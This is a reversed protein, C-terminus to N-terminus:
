PIRDQLTRYDTGPLICGKAWQDLIDAAFKAYKVDGNLWYVIAADLALDNINGNIDAVFAQPDIWEKQRTEQNMLYMLRATDYPVLEEVSPMRYGSGSITVPGRIHPSVRVTPVPADGESRVTRMGGNDSYVRTYRKGPVRNMLYRSLIWQPDSVHREAYRTVNDIMDKYIKGAWSQQEIKLLVSQKDRDNVLLHPYEQSLLSANDTFFLFLFIVYLSNKM